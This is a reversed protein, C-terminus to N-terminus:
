KSVASTPLSIPALCTDIPQKAAATALCSQLTVLLSTVTTIQTIASSINGAQYANNALMLTANIGDTLTLIKKAQNSSISGGQLLSTTALVIADDAASATAITQTFTQASNTTACGYLIVFLIMASFKM